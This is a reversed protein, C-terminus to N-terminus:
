VLIDGEYSYKENISYTNTSINKTEKRDILLSNTTVGYITKLRALEANVQSIGVNMSKNYKVNASINIDLLSRNATGLKYVNHERKTTISTATSYISIAPTYSVSSTFQLIDSSYNIKKNSWSGNYEIEASYENFTVSETTTNPYLNRNKEKRYETNALSFPNFNTNYYQQVLAWRNAITGYKGYIRARLNVTSINKISDTDITVTYNNIINSTLDSNYSLNFNLVNNNYQENISQNVPEKNLTTGFTKLSAENAINYFDYNFYGSRLSNLGTVNNNRLSGQLNVNVLGDEIGSSLDLSYSLIANIPSEVFNSKIYNGEWQYTGNFRDISEKVSNLLFESGNGTKLMVPIIKNYNGTRSNVWNKASTIANNSGTKLGRASITHTLNTIFGDEESFDINEQPDVVGYYNSFLGTEYIEFNVTFPLIGYWDNEETSISDIIVNDGSFLNESNESIVLSGYNNSLRNLLLNFGSTLEYYSLAGLYRGTLQGEMAIKTIQNWNTNFNIFDQNFSIFPTPAIGSFVDIGNYLIKINNNM